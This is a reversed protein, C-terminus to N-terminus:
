LLVKISPSMTTSIFAKIMCNKFDNKHKLIIKSILTLNDEIQKEDFSVRAFSINLNYNKDSCYEIKGSRIEKITKDINQSITGNKINPMLGKPGLLRGLKSMIESMMDPTAIVLDYDYWNENKIKEIIDNSGVFDAGAKKAEEIKNTIVVIKKKNKKGNGHPLFLSGRIKQENKKELLNFHVSLDITADFKNISMKKVIQSAEKISYIKNKDILKCISLYKKGHKKM